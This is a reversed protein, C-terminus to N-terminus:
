DSGRDLEEKLDRIFVRSDDRSLARSQILNFALKHQQLQAADVSTQGGIFTEGYLVDPGERFGMLRFPTMGGPHERVNFPIVQLHVKPLDARDLLHGLQESMVRSGGISRRLVGEDLTVMVQPPERRTLIRQRDIRAAVFQEIQLEPAVPQAATFIARAYAETQLLGPIAVSEFEQIFGARQELEIVHWFWDPYASRILSPWLKVMAGDTGLVRDVRQAFDYSPMEQANEIRGVMTETCDAREAFEAQTLGATLRYRHVERGFRSLLSSVSETSTAPIESGEESIFPQGGHPLWAVTGDPGPAAWAIPTRRWPPSTEMTGAPMHSLLGWAYVDPGVAASLAAEICARANDESVCTGCPGHQHRSNSVHHIDWRYLSGRRSDFAGQDKDNTASTM